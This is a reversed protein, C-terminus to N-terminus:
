EFGDAIEDDIDPQDLAEQRAAELAKGDPTIMGKKYPLSTMGPLRRLTLTGDRRARARKPLPNFTIVQPRDVWKGYRDSRVYADRSEVYHVGQRAGIFRTIRPALIMRSADHHKKWDAVVADATAELADSGIGRAKTKAGVIMGPRILFLHGSEELDWGGLPKACGEAGTIPAAPLPVRERTLVGDTAIAFLNAPDKHLGIIELIQARTGATILGAYIWSNFQAFGISQAMKGYGSNPGLKLVIGEGTNKGVEDRRKYLEAFYRFPRDCVCERTFTYAEEFHLGPWLKTAKAAHWENAWVWGGGSEIPYCISGDAERFPLPGWSKCNKRHKRMTYRVLAITGPKPETTGHSWKGHELCPLLCIQAPYASNIDIGVGHAEGILSHEFRGGFFASAIAETLEAPFSDRQRRLEKFMPGLKWAKFMASATSGPGDYRQLTLGNPLSDTRLNDHADIIKQMMAALLRCELLNYQEIQDLEAATFGSRKAKMDAILNQEELTGVDWDILAGKLKGKADRRCFSKACFRFMDWICASKKGRWCHMRSELYPTCARIALRPPLGKPRGIRANARGHCANRCNLRAGRVPGPARQPLCKMSPGTWKVSFKMGDQNLVFNDWYVGQKGYGCKSNRRTEPRLLKYISANPLDELIKSLDYGFAYGFVKYRSPINAIFAIMERSGLRKGPNARLTKCNQGSADSWSIMTTYHEGESNTEGETDIGVPVGESKAQYRKKQGKIDGRNRNKRSPTQNNHKYRKKPKGRQRLRGPPEWNM